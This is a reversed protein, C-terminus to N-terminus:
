PLSKILDDRTDEKGAGPVVRRRKSTSGGAHLSGAVNQMTRAARPHCRIARGGIKESEDDEHGQRIGEKGRQGCM